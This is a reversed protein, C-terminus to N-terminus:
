PVLTDKAPSVAPIRLKASHPPALALAAPADLGLGQSLYTEGAAVARIAGALEEHAHCKIVYGSAGAGIM